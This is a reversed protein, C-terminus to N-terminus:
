GVDAPVADHVVLQAEAPVPRLELLWRGGHWVAHGLPPAGRLLGVVVVVEHVVRAGGGGVSRVASLSSKMRRVGASSLVLSSNIVHGRSTCTLSDITNHASQYELTDAVVHFSFNM